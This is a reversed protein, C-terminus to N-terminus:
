RGACCSALYTRLERNLPSDQDAFPHAGLPKDGSELLPRLNEPDEVLTVLDASELRRALELQHDDVAEGFCRKRPVVYPRKNVSLATLVSGVGAHTIVVRAEAMRATLDSFPMFDICVAGRPRVTSSGHQVVIGRDCQLREISQLLRDFPQQGSGVTVFIM